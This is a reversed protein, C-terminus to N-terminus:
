AKLITKYLTIDEDKNVELNRREQDYAIAKELLYDENEDNINNILYEEFEAFSMANSAIDYHMLLEMAKGYVEPDHFYKKSWNM